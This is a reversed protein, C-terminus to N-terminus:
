TARAPLEEAVPAPAPGLHTWTARRRPWYSVGGFLSILSPVLLSRVLFSDLLIGVAMTFAFERFPVLPVVALLAFSGAMAAGAVAIARSARPVAVRIADRLPLVRAEEWIRGVVFVNYDSGLALLLVASAFPVYYTIGDRGLVDQFVFTTLGLAAALALASAALLYLPAVFARLFIMLLILNVLLSAVAIRGLDGVTRDITEKALATDGAFGATAGHLGARDLMAPMARQLAALTDMGRVGLPASDFVAVFRAANGDTSVFVASSVPRLPVTAPGYVGAVGPQREILTQLRALAATDDGIGNRQVVIEAPAIIGPAFGQGAARAAVSAPANAPLEDSLSIELHIHRFWSAAVLLGTIVAAAVLFAVPRATVFRAARERWSRVVRVSHTEPAEHVDVKLLESARKAGDGDPPRATGAVPLPRPPVRPWYLLRGFLALAAPVFTLAVLLAVLVTIALGPGLARFFRLSAVLLAATAACVILGATVIIPSFEAVTGRAAEAASRVESLRYRMGSLFFISYDTVVGLLLVVVLPQVESPVAVGARRGLWALLHTAILYGIAAAALVVPPAGVARFYLGVVLAIFLVTALEVFPLASNIRDAQQVRAPISGALGVFAEDKGGLENTVFQRAAAQQGYLGLRPDAFLYTIAATSSERSGPVLRLTNLLPIAGEIAPARPDGRLDILAARAVARLQTLLPLGQPDRQVVAIRSLLPVAFEHLSRRETDVAASHEPVIAGLGSAAATNFSPLYTVAAAAAAIWAPLILFRLAVVGRAFGRSARGVKLPRHATERRRGFARNV